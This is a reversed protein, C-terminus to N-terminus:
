DGDVPLIPADEGSILEGFLVTALCLVDAIIEIASLLIKSFAHVIELQFPLCKAPEFAVGFFDSQRNRRGSSMKIKPSLFTAQAM